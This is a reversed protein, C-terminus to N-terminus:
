PQKSVHLYKQKDLVKLSCINKIYRNCVKVSKFSVSKVNLLAKFTESSHLTLLNQRAIVLIAKVRTRHKM